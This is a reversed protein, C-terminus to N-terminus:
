VFVKEHLSNPQKPKSPFQPRFHNIAMLSRFIARKIAELDDFTLGSADLQHERVKDAVIREVIDSISKEDSVNYSRFTAEISDAIMVIASERSQPTPGPYRFFGEEVGLSRVRCQEMQIHYFYYVLTTGHHERIIDIIPKPLHANEALKIGETVHQIIVQASELPTLLQHMDVGDGRNETFYSPQIVKGIDHYLASVRCLVANAGIALAAEEALNAVSLSHQYTGPAGLSLRRLLPHNPDASELLTMDTVIGFSSELLPLISVILIAIAFVFVFTAACDYFLQRNILQNKILNLMVVIPILCLWVKMCIAFIEKRKRVGRTWIIGWIGTALNMILFDHTEMALTINLIIAIFGTVVLAVPRDVLISLIVSAFLLYVPLRCVDALGPQQLIFYETLKALCLTALTVAAILSMKSFSRFVNLHFKYFYIIGMFVLIAAFAVSGLLTLPRKLSNQEETLVKKMQQLMNVHRRTVKDGANIIRSGAEVHTMRIPTREKILRRLNHRLNFDERFSWPYDRYKALMFQSAEVLSTDPFAFRKVQDWVSDMSRGGKGDGECPLFEASNIAMQALKGVTRADTFEVKMLTDGIADHAKMLDDFTLTPFQERWGSNQILDDQIQRECKLIEEEDFYYIIGIDRLSEERLMRTTELDEFDFGVQALVYKEAVAGMELSDIRVERFHLFFSLSAIFFVVFFSKHVWRWDYLSFRHVAAKIGRLVKLIM